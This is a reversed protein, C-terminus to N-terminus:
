LKAEAQAMTEFFCLADDKLAQALAEQSDTLRACSSRPFSGARREILRAGSALIEQLLVDRCALDPVQGPWLWILGPLEPTPWPQRDLEALFVVLVGQGQHDEHWPHHAPTRYHRFVVAAPREDGQLAVREVEGHSHVVLTEGCPLLRVSSGIEERAERQVGTTLSQDEAEMAGGIGTLEVVSQGEEHRPPRIGYLLLGRRRLILSTGLFGGSPLLDAITKPPQQSM